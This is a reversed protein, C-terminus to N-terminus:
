LMLISPPWLICPEIRRYSTCVSPKMTLKSFLLHDYWPVRAKIKKKRCIKCAGGKSKRVATAHARGATTLRRTKRQKPISSDLNQGESLPVSTAMDGQQTRGLAAHYKDEGPPRRPSHPHEYKILLPELSGSFSSEHPQPARGQTQVDHSYDHHWASPSPLIDDGYSTHINPTYPPTYVNIAEASYPEGDFSMGDQTHSGSAFDILNAEPPTAKPSPLASQSGHTEQLQEMDQLFTSQMYASSGLTPTPLQALGLSQRSPQPNDYVRQSSNPISDDVYSRYSEFCDCCWTPYDDERETNHDGHGCTGHMSPTQM